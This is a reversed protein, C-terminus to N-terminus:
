KKHHEKLIDVATEYQQIQEDINRLIENGEKLRDKSVILSDKLSNLFKCKDELHAIPHEVDIKEKSEM